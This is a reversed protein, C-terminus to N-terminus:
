LDNDANGHIILATTLLSHIFLEVGGLGMM